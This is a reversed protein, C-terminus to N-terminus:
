AILSLYRQALSEWSYRPDSAFAGAGEELRMRFPEDNIVRTIAAAVAPADGPATLVGNRGPEVFEAFAGVDSAVIPKGFQFATSVVGSQSASRYPCVVCIAHSVLNAVEANSLYRRMVIFRRDNAMSSIAPDAGAGAVVVKVGRLGDGLAEIAALLVDLGKYPLLTGFFLVYREGVIRREDAKGYAVYTEFVGFPIVRVEPSTVGYRAELMRKAAHSHVIINTGERILHDLLGYSVRQTAYHAAIEHLAHYVNPARGLGRHLELLFPDQGEVLVLDYNKRGIMRGLRRFFGRSYAAFVRRAYPPLVALIVSVGEGLYEYMVKMPADNARRMGPWYVTRGFELAPASSQGSATVFYFDVACQVKALYRALPLTSESHHYAVIAIRKV